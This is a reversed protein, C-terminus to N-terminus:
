GHAGPQSISLVAQNRLYWDKLARADWLANHALDPTIMEKGGEILSMKLPMPLIYGLQAGVKDLLTCFHTFDAPWDAIIEADRCHLQAFGHFSLLFRTESVPEKDLKPVVVREVWPHIKLPLYSVEYWEEGTETVLAMSILEGGLSNFETDLFVRKPKM